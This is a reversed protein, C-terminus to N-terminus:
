VQAGAKVLATVTAVMKFRSAVHLPTEEANNRAELSAGNRVLAPLLDPSAGAAAAHLPEDGVNDRARPSAGAKQMHMDRSDIEGKHPASSLLDPQAETHLGAFCGIDPYGPERPVAGLAICICLDAHM